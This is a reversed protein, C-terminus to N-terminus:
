RIGLIALRRYPHEANDAIALPVVNNLVVNGSEELAFNLGPLCSQERGRQGSAMLQADFGACLRGYEARNFDCPCTLAQSSIVPPQTEAQDITQPWRKKAPASITGSQNCNCGLRCCQQRQWLSSHTERRGKGSEDRM